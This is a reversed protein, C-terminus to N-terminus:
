IFRSIPQTPNAHPEELLMKSWPQRQQCHSTLDAKMDMIWQVGVKHSGGHTEGRVWEVSCVMAFRERM